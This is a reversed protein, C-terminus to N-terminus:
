QQPFYSPSLFTSVIGSGPVDQQGIIRRAMLLKRDYFDAENRDLSNVRVEEFSEYLDVGPARTGIGLLGAAVDAEAARGMGISLRLEDDIGIIHATRVAGGDSLEVFFGEEVHLLTADGTM